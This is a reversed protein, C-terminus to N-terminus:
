KPFIAETSKTSNLLRKKETQHCLVQQAKTLVEISASYDRQHLLHEVMMLEHHNISRFHQDVVHDLQYTSYLIAEIFM